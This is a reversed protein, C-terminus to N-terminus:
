CYYVSLGRMPLEMLDTSAMSLRSRRDLQPSRAQDLAMPMRANESLSTLM